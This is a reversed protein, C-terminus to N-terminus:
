IRGFRSLKLKGSIRIVVHWVYLITLRSVSVWVVAHQCSYALLTHPLIRNKYLFYIQPGIGAAARDLAHTQLRENAPVTPGFGAPPM